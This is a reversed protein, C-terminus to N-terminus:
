KGAQLGPGIRISRIGALCWRRMISPSPLAIATVACNTPRSHALLSFFLLSEFERVQGVKACQAFQKRERREVTDNTQMGLYENHQDQDLGSM